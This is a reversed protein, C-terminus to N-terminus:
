AATAPTCYFLASKALRHQLVCAALDAVIPQAPM